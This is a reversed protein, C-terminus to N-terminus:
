PRARPGSALRASVLSEDKKQALADWRDAADLLERRKAGRTQQALAGITDARERCELGSLKESNHLTRGEAEKALRLVRQRAISILVSGHDTAKTKRQRADHKIAAAEAARRRAGALYTTAAKVMWFLVGISRSREMAVESKERSDSEQGNRDVSERAVAAPSGV